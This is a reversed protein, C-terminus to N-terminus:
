QSNLINSNSILNFNSSDYAEIYYFYKTGFDSSFVDLKIENSGLNKDISINPISPVNKDNGFTDVFKNGNFKDDLSVIKQWQSSNEYKRYIVFYKDSIDYNSWDLEVSGKENPTNLIVKSTITLQPVEFEYVDSVNGVLDEAIVYVYKVNVIDPIVFDEDISIEIGTSFDPNDLKEKNTIYRYKAVGSGEGLTPHEDNSTVSLLNNHISVDTINPSTNDINNITIFETSTNGLSDKAYVAALTDVYVDGVLKYQKQYIDDVFDALEYNKSDNFALSVNGMGYDKAIITLDKSKRWETDVTSDVIIEPAKSDLKKIEVPTFDTINECLDKAQVYLTKKERTEDVINFSASFTTGLNTGATWDYIVTEKDSDM